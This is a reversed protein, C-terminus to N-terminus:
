LDLEDFDYRQPSSRALDEWLDDDLGTLDQKTRMQAYESMEKDDCKGRCFACYVDIHGKPKLVRLRELVDSLLVNTQKRYEDISVNNLYVGFPNILDVTKPDIFNLYYDNTERAIKNPYNRTDYDITSVDGCYPQNIDQAFHIHINPPLEIISDIYCGHAVIYVQHRIQNPSKSRTRRRKPSKSPTRKSSKSPSRKITRRKM